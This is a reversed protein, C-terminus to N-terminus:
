NGFNQNGEFKIELIWTRWNLKWFKMKKLNLKWFGLKKWTIKSVEIKWIFKLFGIKEWITKIGSQSEFLRRSRKIKNLMFSNEYNYFLPIQSILEHLIFPSQHPGWM